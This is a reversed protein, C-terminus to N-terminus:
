YSWRRWWPRAAAPQDHHQPASTGRACGRPDGCVGLLADRGHDYPHHRLRYYYDPVGGEYLAPPCQTAALRGVAYAHSHLLPASGYYDHYDLHADRAGARCAEADRAADFSADCLRMASFTCRVDPRPLLPYYHFWM